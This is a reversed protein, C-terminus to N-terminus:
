VRVRQRPKVGDAFDKGALFAGVLKSEHGANFFEIRKM